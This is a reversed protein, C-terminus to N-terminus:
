LFHELPYTVPLRRRLTAKGSRFAVEVFVRQADVRSRAPQVEVETRSALVDTYDTMLCVSQMFKRGGARRQKDFAALKERVEPNGKLLLTKEVVLDFLFTVDNLSFTGHLGWPGNDRCCQTQHVLEWHMRQCSGSCYVVDGCPCINVTRNHPGRENSCSIHTRWTGRSGYETEYMSLYNKHAFAALRWTVDKKLNMPTAPLPHIIRIARAFDTHDYEAGTYREFDVLLGLYGEELAHLFPRNDNTSRCLIDVLRIAWYGGHRTDHLRLCRKGALIVPRFASHPITSPALEPLEVIGVLLGLHSRWMNLATSADMDLQAVCHTLPAILRYLAQRRPIAINVCECFLARDRSTAANINSALIKFLTTALWITRYFARHVYTSASSTKTYCAHIRPLYRWLEFAQTILDPNAHLFAKTTNVPSMTEELVVLYAQALDFTERAADRHNRAPHLFAAWRVIHPWLCRTARELSRDKSYEVARWVHTSVRLSLFIVQVLDDGIVSLSSPPAASLTRFTTPVKAKLEALVSKTTGGPSFFTLEGTLQRALLRLRCLEEYEVTLFYNMHYTFPLFHRQITAGLRFVVQVPVCQVEAASDVPRTRTEYRMDLVDSFDVILYAQESFRRKSSDISSLLLRSARKRILDFGVCAGPGRRLVVIRAIDAKSTCVNVVVLVTCRMAARASAYSRMIPAGSNALVRSVMANTCGANRRWTRECRDVTYLRDYNSFVQAAKRWVPKRTAFRATQPFDHHTSRLARLVRGQVAASCLRQVFDPHDWRKGTSKELDILLGLYGERIARVFSRNDSTARCLGDVLRVAWLGIEDWENEHNQFAKMGVSIVACFASRPVVSPALEPLRTLGGLLVLHTYWVNPVIDPDIKLQRLSQTLPAITRYLDHRKMARDIGRSLLERGVVADADPANVLLHYIRHALLIPKIAAGSVEEPPAFPKIHLAYIRPLYRWLEFAQTIVDPYTYLFNRESDESEMKSELITLYAHAIDGAQRTADRHPYRAVVDNRAPNLAASWRVIHPWLTRAEAALVEDRTSEVARWLDLFLRLSTFIIDVFSDSFTEPFSSSETILTRFATPLQDKIEAVAGKRTYGPIMTMEGTLQRALVGLKLLEEHELNLAHGPPVTREFYDKPDM